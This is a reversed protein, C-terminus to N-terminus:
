FKGFCKGQMDLEGHIRGERRIVGRGIGGARNLIIKRILRTVVEDRAVPESRGGGGRGIRDRQDRGAPRQAVGFEVGPCGTKGAIKGAAPKTGARQDADADVTREVLDDRRQRRPFGTAREQREIRRPGIRPEARDDGIGVARHHDTGALDGAPDGSRCAFQDHDIAIGGRDGGASREGRRRCARAIEGIDDVGRTRGTRGLADLQGMGIEGIQDGPMMACERDGPGIARGMEGPEAEVRRDPLDPGIEAGARGHQQHRIRGPCRIDRQAFPQDFLLDGDGERRGGQDLQHDGGVPRGIGAQADQQGAGIPQMEIRSGAQGERQDIIVARGFAGDDRGRRDHRRQGIRVAQRRDPPRDVM